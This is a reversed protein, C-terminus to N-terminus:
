GKLGTVSGERKLQLSQQVHNRLQLRRGVGHAGVGGLQPQALEVIIALIEGGFIVLTEVVGQPREQLYGEVFLPSGEEM